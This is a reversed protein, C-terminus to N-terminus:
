KCLCFSSSFFIFFLFIYLYLSLRFVEIYSFPCPANVSVPFAYTFALSCSQHSPTRQLPYIYWHSCPADRGFDFPLLDVFLYRNSSIVLIGFPPPPFVAIWMGTYINVNTHSYRFDMHMSLFHCVNAFIYRFHSSSCAWHISDLYTLIRDASEKRWVTTTQVVFHAARSQSDHLTDVRTITTCWLQAM